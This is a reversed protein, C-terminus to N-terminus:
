ERGLSVHDVALLQKAQSPLNKKSLTHMGQLMGGEQRPYLCTTGTEVSVSLSMFCAHMTM